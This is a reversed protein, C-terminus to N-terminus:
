RAEVAASIIADAARVSQEHTKANNWPAFLAQPVKSLMERADDDTIEVPCEAIIGDILYTEDLHMSMTKEGKTQQHTTM